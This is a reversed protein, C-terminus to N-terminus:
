QKLYIGPAKLSSKLLHNQFAMMLHLRSIATPEGFESKKIGPSKLSAKPLHKLFAMMLHLRSIATPEGFEFHKM